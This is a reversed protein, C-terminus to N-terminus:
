LAYVMLLWPGVNSNLLINRIYYVTEYVLMQFEHLVLYLHVSLYFCYYLIQPFKILTWFFHPAFQLLKFLGEYGGFAGRKLSFM